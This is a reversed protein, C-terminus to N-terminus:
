KRFAAPTKGVLRKFTAYFTSKSSFGAEFGIAELTFQNNVELLKKAEEIRHENIFSAFSKGINDNLLQSLQHPSIALADALHQLKVNPNKYLQQERMVTELKEMLANAEDSAIKKTQYKKPEGHFIVNRNKRFLLFFVIIYLVLSFSLAGMIYWRYAGLNYAVYIVIVSVFVLLLWLERTSTQENRSLFKKFLGRLEYGTLLIYGGWASYIIKTSYNRWLEPNTEYPYLVGLVITIALLLGIHLKWSLPIHSIEKLSAKVYYYLMVGIMFCASLGIQLILLMRDENFVMYVSKGIRISLMLVLLGLFYNPLRNKKRFFLLYMSALFGNFVGLASFFFLLPNDINM